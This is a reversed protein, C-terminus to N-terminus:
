PGDIAIERGHDGIVEDYEVVCEEDCNWRGVGEHVTEFVGDLVCGAERATV